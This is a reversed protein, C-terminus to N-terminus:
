SVNIIEYDKKYNDYLFIWESWDWDYKCGEALKWWRFIGYTNSNSINCFVLKFILYLWYNNFHIM